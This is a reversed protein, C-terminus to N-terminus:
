LAMMAMMAGKGRMMGMCDSIVRPGRPVDSRESHAHTKCLAASDEIQTDTYPSTSFMAYM